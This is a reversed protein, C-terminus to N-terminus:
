ISSLGARRGRCGAGPRRFLLFACPRLASRLTQCRPFCGTAHGAETARAHHFTHPHDPHLLRVQEIGAWRPRDDSARAIDLCWLSKPLQSKRLNSAFDRSPVCEQTLTPFRVDDSPQWVIYVETDDNERISLAGFIPRGSERIQIYTDINQWKITGKGPCRSMEGEADGSSGGCVDSYPCVENWAEDPASSGEMAVVGIATACM